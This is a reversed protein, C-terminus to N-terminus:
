LPPLHSLLRLANEASLEYHYFQRYYNQTEVVMDLDAFLEPYMKQALFQMLLVGESSYDWYMVGDPCLFVQNGRVAKLQAWTRGKLVPDTSEMRGMFIVDPNWTIIQEMTVETDMEAGTEDAINRGGALELWFSVYSYQSFLGLGDEGYAYIATKRQEKPIKATRETVFAVKRQFYDFWAKAKEGADAGLADAFVQVERKQYAIFEASTKPNGTSNQVVVVPINANEMNKLPEAYDWFFVCDAGLELLAEVNPEGPSRIPTVNSIGPNTAKVWPRDVMYFHAGALRDAEGLLFVKEYSPGAIAVAREPPTILSVKRGALDTITHSRGSAPAKDGRGTAFVPLIGVFLFLVPVCVTRLFVSKQLCWKKTKM